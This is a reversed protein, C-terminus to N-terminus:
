GGRSAPLVPAPAAPAGDVSQDQQRQKRQDDDKTAVLSRLRILDRLAGYWFPAGLSMLAASIVIGIIRSLQIEGFEDRWGKKWAGVSSPMEILNASTLYRLGTKYVRNEEVPDSPPTPKESATTNLIKASANMTHSLGLWDMMTPNAPPVNEFALAQQVVEKRLADDTSLRNILSVMDLQLVVAVMAAIVFTIVRAYLTFLGSVRDITQDFWANVKGVFDSSAQRLIALNVRANNALEPTSKELELATTRIRSLTGGPDDVGNKRLSEKLRQRLTDIPSSRDRPATHSIAALSAQIRGLWSSSPAGHALPAADAPPPAAPPINAFELLLKTLEERHVVEALRKGVLGAEAVLSDRLIHDAIRKADVATLGEDLLSLLNKIGHRLCIGRLNLSSTIVQTLMTVVMSMILMVLSVGILTDISKM